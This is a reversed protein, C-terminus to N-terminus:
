RGPNYTTTADVKTDRANLYDLYLTIAAKVGAVAETKGFRLTDTRRKTADPESTDEVTVVVYDGDVVASKYAWTAGWALTGWLLLIGAMLSILTM